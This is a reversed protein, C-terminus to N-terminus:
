ATEEPEPLVYMAEHNKLNEEIEGIIREAQERRFTGICLTCKELRTFGKGGEAKFLNLRSLSENYEEAKIGDFHDFDIIATGKSNKIYM